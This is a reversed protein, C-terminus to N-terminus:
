HHEHHVGSRGIPTSIAREIPWDLRNIRSHIQKYPLALRRCAEKLTIKEGGVAVYLCNRKNNSQERRTAWRCNGQEYNGDNNIRDLTHQLSPRPSMDAAFVEFSQWRECVTIGRGGYDEYRANDPNSCRQRMQTWIGQLRWKEPNLLKRKRCHEASVKARMEPDKYPM